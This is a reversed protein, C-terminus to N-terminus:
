RNPRAPAITEAIRVASAGFTIVKSPARVRSPIWPAAVPVADIASMMFAKLGESRTLAMPHHVNTPAPPGTIPTESPDGIMWNKPQRASKQICSTKSTKANQTTATIRGALSTELSSAARSRLTAIEFKLVISQTPEVVRDIPTVKTM